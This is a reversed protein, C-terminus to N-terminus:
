VSPDDQEGSEDVEPPRRIVIAEEVVREIREREQRAKEAAEDDPLPAPDPVASLSTRRAQEIHDEDETTMTLHKGVVIRAM